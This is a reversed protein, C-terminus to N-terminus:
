LTAFLLDIKAIEAVWCIQFLRFSATAVSVLVPKISKEYIDHPQEWKYLKELWNLYKWNKVAM